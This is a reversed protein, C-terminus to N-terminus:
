RRLRSNIHVFIDMFGNTDNPVLNTANSAFAVVMGNASMVCAESQANGQEGNTNNSIRWTEGSWMDHMFIDALRDNIDGDDTLNTSPSALLAYHGDDTLMAIGGGHNGQGGDSRVTVRVTTGLWRDRVFGDYTRNTDGSVLNSATSSFAVYRGDPSIAIGSVVGSDSNGQTGDTSVSVRETIRTWTDHVFVDQTRNTDGDVLNSAYSQFCVYRGDSTISPRGSYLNAQEGRSSESVRITVGRLRDRMFIDDWGNTDGDVLNTGRSRFAIYRGNESICSHDSGADAEVGDQGISIRETSNSLLDRVFVDGVGNSDGPVLNTGESYFSVFREDGSIAELVSAGNSQIGNAGVSVRITRRTSLDHVFGDIWGNTDGTVLNTAWSTFGLLRGTPSLVPKQSRDNSQTGRESVSARFTPEIVTASFSIGAVTFLATVLFTGHRM